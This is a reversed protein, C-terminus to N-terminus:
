KSQDVQPCLMSANIRGPGKSVKWPWLTTISTEALSFFASASLLAALMVGHEKLEAACKIVWPWASRVNERLRDVARQRVASLELAHAPGVGWLAAAALLLLLAGGAARALAPWVVGKRESAGARPVGSGHGWDQLAGDGAQSCRVRQPCHQAPLVFAGRRQESGQKAKRLTSRGLSSSGLDCRRSRHPIANSIRFTGLRVGRAAQGLPTACGPLSASCYHPLLASRAVRREAVRHQVPTSPLLHVPTSATNWCLAEM